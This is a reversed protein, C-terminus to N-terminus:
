LERTQQKEQFEQIHPDLSRWPSLLKCICEPGTGSCMLPPSVMHKTVSCSHCWVALHVFAAQHPCPSESGPQTLSVVRYDSAFLPNLLPKTSPKCMESPFQASQHWSVRQPRTLNSSCTPMLKLWSAAFCSM